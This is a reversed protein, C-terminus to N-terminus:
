EYLKTNGYVCVCLMKVRIFAHARACSYMKAYVVYEVFCSGAITSDISCIEDMDGGGGGGGGGCVSHLGNRIHGRACSYM